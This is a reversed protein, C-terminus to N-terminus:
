GNSEDELYESEELVEFAMCGENETEGLPEGNLFAYYGTPYLEVCGKHYPEDDAVVVDDIWRFPEDCAKCLKLKNSM